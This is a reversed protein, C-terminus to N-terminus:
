PWIPSPLCPTAATSPKSSAGCRGCRREAADPPSADEIDDHVLSFNHLIEVAAAAPLASRWDGGAAACTLLCLLPRIQKGAYITIPQMDAGVWGMHYHMMGYFLSPPNNTVQFVTKMEQDLAALMEQSLTKLENSM